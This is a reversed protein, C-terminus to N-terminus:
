RAKEKPLDNGWWDMGLKAAFDFPLFPNYVQPNTGNKLCFRVWEKITMGPKRRLIELDTESAVDVWVEYFTGKRIEVPIGYMKVKAEDVMAAVRAYTDDNGTHYNGYIWTLQLFTGNGCPIEAKEALEDLEKDFEKRKALLANGQETIEANRIELAEKYGPVSLLAANDANKKRPFRKKFEAKWIADFAACEQDYRAQVQARFAKRENWLTEFQDRPTM